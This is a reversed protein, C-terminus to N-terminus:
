LCRRDRLPVAHHSAMWTRQALIVLVLKRNCHGRRKWRLRERKRSVSGKLAFGGSQGGTCINEEFQTLQTERSNSLNGVAQYTHQRLYFLLASSSIFCWTSVILGIFPSPIASKQFDM